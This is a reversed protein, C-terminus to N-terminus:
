GHDLRRAAVARHELVEDLAIRGRPVAEDLQPDVQVGGTLGEVVRRIRGGIDLDLAIRPADHPTPVDRAVRASRHGWLHPCRGRWREGSGGFGGRVSRTM